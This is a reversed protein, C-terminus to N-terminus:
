TRLEQTSGNSLRCITHTDTNINDFANKQSNYMGPSVDAFGKFNTGQEFFLHTIQEQNPLKNELKLNLIARWDFLQVGVLNKPMVGDNQYEWVTGTGLKKYLVKIKVDSFANDINATKEM